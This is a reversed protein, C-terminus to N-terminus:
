AGIQLPPTSGDHLTFTSLASYHKGSVPSSPVQQNDGFGMSRWENKVALCRRRKTRGATGSHGTFILLVVIVSVIMGRHTRGRTKMTVSKVTRYMFCCCVVNPASTSFWGTGLVCTIAVTLLYFTVVTFLLQSVDYNSVM